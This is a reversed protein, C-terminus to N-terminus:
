LVDGFDIQEGFLVTILQLLWSIVKHIVYSLFILDNINFPLKVKHGRVTILLLIIRPKSFM